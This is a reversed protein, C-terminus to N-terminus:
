EVFIEVHEGDEDDQIDVVKGLRGEQEIERLLEPIDVDGVEPAFRAGLRLGVSVLSLPINVDVKRRGTLTDTVRVRFWSPKGAIAQAPGPAAGALAGLLRAGEQATIQGKEVMKLIQLREADATM